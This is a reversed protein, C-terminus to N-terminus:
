SEAEWKGGMRDLLEKRCRFDWTYVTNISAAGFHRQIEAFTRGELKLRFLERCREGLHTLAQRLRELKEQRELTSLPSEHGDALPVDDVSVSSYEGHRLAKRRFGALKFRVIQLSLPVLEEMATVHLYKEELVVLVEQALDEAPDRGVRSAAFSVIRERLRKLTDDRDVRMNYAFLSVTAM